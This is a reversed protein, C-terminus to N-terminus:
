NARGAGNTLQHSSFHLPSFGPVSVIGTTNKCVQMRSTLHLAGVAPNSPKALQRPRVLLCPSGSFRVLFPMSRPTKSQKKKKSPLTKSQKSGCRGSRTDETGYSPEQTNAFLAFFLDFV